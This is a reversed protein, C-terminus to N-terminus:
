AEDQRRNLDTANGSAPPTDRTFPALALCGAEIDRLLPVFEEALSDSIDGTLGLEVDRVRGRNLQYVAIIAVRVALWAADSLEPAIVAGYQQWAGTLLQEDPNWLRKKEVCMRASARGRALEDDILRAARKVEIARNHTDRQRDSQERRRDLLYSSGATIIGGVIVGVLGFIAEGM